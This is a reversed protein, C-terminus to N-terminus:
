GRRLFVVERPNTGAPVVVRFGEDIRKALVENAKATGLELPHHFRTSGLSTDVGFIALRAVELDGEHPDKSSGVFRGQKQTGYFGNGLRSRTVLETITTKRYRSENIVVHAIALRESAPRDAAESSVVRALSYIDSPVGSIKSLELPDPSVFGADSVISRTLRKGRRIRDITFWAGTSLLGIGVLVGGVWILARKM